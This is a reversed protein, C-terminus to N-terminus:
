PCHVPPLFLWISPINLRTVIGITSYHPIIQKITTNTSIFIIIQKYTDHVNISIDLYTFDHDKLSFSWLVYRIHYLSHKTSIKPSPHHKITTTTTIPIIVQNYKDHDNISIDLYLQPGDTFDIVAYIIRIYVTMLVSFKQHFHPLFYQWSEVQDANQMKGYSSNYKRLGCAHGM